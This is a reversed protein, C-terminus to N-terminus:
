GKAPDLVISNPKGVQNNRLITKHYTTNDMRVVEITHTVNDGIYLNRSIWDIALCKPSNLITRSIIETSNIGDM